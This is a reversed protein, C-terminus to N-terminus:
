DSAGLEPQRDIIATRLEAPIPTSKRTGKDVYVQTLGGRALLTDTADNYLEFAADASSNGLRSYGVCVR